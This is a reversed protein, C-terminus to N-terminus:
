WEMFSSAITQCGREIEAKQSGSAQHQCNFFYETRGNWVMYVISDLARGNEDPTTTEFRYGAMGGTTTIREPGSVLSGGASEFLGKVTAAANAAFKDVNWQTISVKTAYATVSVFDLSSKRSFGESWVENGTQAQTTTSDLRSWGDPITFSVGHGKYTGGTKKEGISVSASCGVSCCTAVTVLVFATVAPAIRRLTRGLLDLTLDPM